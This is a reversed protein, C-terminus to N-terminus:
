RDSRPWPRWCCRGARSACRRCASAHAEAMFGSVEALPERGTFRVREALGLEAGGGGLARADPRRRRGDLRVDLRGRLRQMARLLLPLGQVPGAPRRLAAAVPPRRRATGALAAGPLAGPRRRERADACLSATASGSVLRADGRHRGPHARCPPDLGAGLGPDARCQAASVALGCGARMFEPFTSPSRLGGNLPGLVTPLGTRHLVSAAVPSVPTPSHILDWPATDAERLRRRVQGCRPVTMSTSTWRRSCSCRM